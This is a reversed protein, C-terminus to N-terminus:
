HRSSRWTVRASSCGRDAMAWQTPSPKQLGDPPDLRPRFVKLVVPTGAKGPAAVYTYSIYDDGNVHSIKGSEGHPGSLAASGQASAPSALGSAALAFVAFVLCTLLPSKASRM